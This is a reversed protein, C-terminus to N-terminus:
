RISEAASDQAELARKLRTQSNRLHSRAAEGATAPDQAQIASYIFQHEKNLKQLYRQHSDNDMQLRSRPISGKGLHTLYEHFYTNGTAMAIAQHFAFDADIAHQPDLVDASELATLHDLAQRIADLQEPTRREAALTAAEVEIAIRVELLAVADIATSVSSLPIHMPNEAPQAVFTGIGHRTEVLGSAQLRSIAERVVTRSVGLQRMIESETPLKDGPGLQGSHIPASLAEVAEEALTRSSRRILSTLRPSTTTM